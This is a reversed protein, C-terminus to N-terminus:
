HRSVFEPVGINTFLFNTLIIIITVIVSRSQCHVSLVAFVRSVATVPQPVAEPGSNRCRVRVQAVRPQSVASNGTGTNCGVEEWKPWDPSQVSALKRMHQNFVKPARSLQQWRKTSEMVMM